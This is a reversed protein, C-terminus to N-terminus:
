PTTGEGETYTTGDDSLPKQWDDTLNDNKFTKSTATVTLENRLTKYVRGIKVALTATAPPVGTPEGFTDVTLVDLVQTNVDTQAQAALSGVSGIVNGAVNGFVNGVVLGVSGVVDGLVDGALNGGVNGVVSGVSGTVNGGVNGVVSGVSGTVNGGVNGTVSGVAGTVSGVAGTVSGVSGSLNGTIDGTLNFAQTGTLTRTTTGWVKDAGSQTIGVDAVVSGVSGTVNGTVSAVSGAVNGGVNGTVSAVSGTVNGQVSAVGQGFTGATTHSARPEDWVGDVIEQVTPATGGGANDAIEQVVSGAVSTAYTQGSDTLFFQAIAAQTLGGITGDVNGVVDGGLNGVVSAVTGVVNGGVNGTVSGVSGSVNGGVNGTVSGVAGTVSGVSGSLNGTINGVINANLATSITTEANTGARLLGNASGPAIGPLSTGIIHGATGAGYAGPLTTAWPDGASGAANLAAGTSGATLHGSLTADWVADEVDTQAQAALSGISGTVNGGVNGTVSAVSGGVNGTVSGVAGTVSGVAGTVSAVVQSTAITTGTLGNATTPSEINAWDIGATGGATVDLTRGATTPALRTSIAADLNDGIIQGATGAGYAGPLATAWPDGASGAAALAEGTSGADQHSALAVDWVADQVDTIAGAALGGIDGTVSAVSGVVNGGVNGTVSAVSGVVNGGVNGTVSGVAGTVSAVVQDTDITTGALDLVTTPNEVNGWDIGAAGTATVDLTRGATTPQLYGPATAAFLADYVAEELVVFTHFVPLAGAVVVSVYLEGVTATDTADFTVGYVGNVRHTAGGSNKDASTGGNAVLKIDTNAITLSTLPTIFDTSDIFPGLARSQSATAQRLYSNM